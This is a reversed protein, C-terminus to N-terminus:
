AGTSGEAGPRAGNTGPDPTTAVTRDLHERLADLRDDWRNALASLWALAARV